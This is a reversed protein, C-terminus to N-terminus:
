NLEEHDLLCDSCDLELLQHVEKDFLDIHLHQYGDNMLTLGLDL